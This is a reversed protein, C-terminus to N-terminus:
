RAKGAGVAHRASHLPGRLPQAILGVVPCDVGEHLPDDIRVAAQVDEHVVRSSRHRGGVDLRDRLEDLLDLAGRATVVLELAGDQEM